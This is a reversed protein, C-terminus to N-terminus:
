ELLFNPHIFNLLQITLFHILILYHFILPTLFQIVKFLYLIFSHICYIVM